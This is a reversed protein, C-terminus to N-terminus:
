RKSRESRQCLSCTHNSGGDHRVPLVDQEKPQHRDGDRRGPQVPSQPRPFAGPPHEPDEPKNKRGGASPLTLTSLTVHNNDKEITTLPFHNATQVQFLSVSQDLGATMVVQASPHFQVTSLRDESPRASNAHLCKKM